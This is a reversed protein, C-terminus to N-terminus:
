KHVDNPNEKSAEKLIKKKQKMFLRHKENEESIDFMTKKKESKNTKM